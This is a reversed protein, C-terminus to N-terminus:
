LFYLQSLLQCRENKFKFRHRLKFRREMNTRWNFILNLQLRIGTTDHSYLFLSLM